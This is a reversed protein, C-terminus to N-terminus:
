NKDILVFNTIKLVNDKLVSLPMRKKEHLRKCKLCLNILHLVLMLKEGEDDVKEAYFM